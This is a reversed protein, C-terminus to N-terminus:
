NQRVYQLRLLGTRNQPAFETKRHFMFNKNIFSLPGSNDPRIQTVNSKKNQTVFWFNSLDLACAV